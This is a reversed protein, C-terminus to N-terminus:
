VSFIEDGCVYKVHYLKVTSLNFISDKAVLVRNLDNNKNDM